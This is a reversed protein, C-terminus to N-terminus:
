LSFLHSQECSPSGPPTTPAEPLLPVPLGPDEHATEVPLPSPGLMPHPHVPGHSADPLRAPCPGPSSGPALMGHGPRPDWPSVLAKTPVRDCTLHIHTMPGARRLMPLTPAPSPHPLRAWTPLLVNADPQGHPGRLVAGEPRCPALWSCPGLPLAGPRPAPLLVLILVHTSSQVPAPEPSHPRRATPGPPPSPPLSGRLQPGAPHLCPHESVRPPSM